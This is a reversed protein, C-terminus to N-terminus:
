SKKEQKIERLLELNLELDVVPTKTLCRDTIDVLKGDKIVKVSFWNEENREGSMFKEEIIKM